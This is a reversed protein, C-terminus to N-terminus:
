LPQCHESTNVGIAKQSCQFAQSFEPVHLAFIDCENEQGRHSGPCLLFCSSIFLLQMGSYQELGELVWSTLPSQRFADVLASYGIANTVYEEPYEDEGSPGRRLCKFPFDTANSYARYTGVLISGLADVVESGLGGFNVSTPLKSDFFPFSLTYPMLNFDRKGWSTSYLWLHRVAYSLEIVQRTSNLLVSHQWNAVFSQTMDPLDSSVIQGTEREDYEFDRFASDLSSWNAVVIINPNYHPWESLRRSFALRISLVMEKAIAGAKSHFDNVSYRAILSPSFFLAKSVCFARYYLMAKNPVEGYYNLILGRNAYLAAVQVTCWSVFLHFQDEGYSEWLTLLKQLFARDYSFIRLSDNVSVNVRRLTEIWRGESLGASSSNAFWEAPKPTPESSGFFPLLANMAPAAIDWMQNYTVANGMITSNGTAFQNRIFEFYAQQATMARQQTYVEHLTDFSRGRSVVLEDSPEGPTLVVHFRLLADWGLKLSSYLMTFPTDAQKSPLPWIIGASALAEKVSALGDSKGLFVNYCSHYLAAARQEDNQGVAPIHINNLTTHLRNMFLLFREEWVDLNQRQQWGDCVFHTFHACPNVSRNISSSLRRSYARCAHTVCLNATSTSPALVIKTVGFVLLSLLLLCSVCGVILETQLM